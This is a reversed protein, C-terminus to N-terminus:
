PLADIAGLIRGLLPGSGASSEVTSASVFSERLGTKLLEGDLRRALDNLEWRMHQNCLAFFQRM